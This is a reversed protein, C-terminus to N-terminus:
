AIAYTDGLDLQQLLLGQLILEKSYVRAGVEQLQKWMEMDEECSVVVIIEKEKIGDDSESSTSSAEDEDKAPQQSVKIKEKLFKLDVRKLFVAKGGGIEVLPKLQAPKPQTSPSIYISCNDFVRKGKARDLAEYLKVDYEQKGEPDALRYDNEDIKGRSCLDSTWEYWWIDIVAILSDFHLKGLVENADICANLYERRVIFKAQAIGYLFKETRSRQEAVIHTSDEVSKAAIIGLAKLQKTEKATLDKGIGTCLYKITKTEKPEKSEKSERPEKNEEIPPSMSSDSPGPASAVARKRKSPAKPSDILIAERSSNVSTNVEDDDSRAPTGSTSEKRTARRKKTPSAPKKTTTTSTDVDMDNESEEGDEDDDGDKSISIDDLVRKRKKLAKKENQREEQYTNMDAANQELAKSAKLAAGRQRSVILVGGPASTSPVPSADKDSIKTTSSSPAKSSPATTTGDDIPVAKRQRQPTPKKPSEPQIKIPREDVDDRDQNNDVNADNEPQNPKIHELEASEVPEAKVLSRETLEEIWDDIEQPQIKTGFVQSLQNHVPFLTYRPKAESQLSWTQFCDELWLHNVM